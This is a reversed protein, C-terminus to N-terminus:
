PAWFTGVVNHTFHCLITAGLSKTVQRILADILLTPTYQLFVEPPTLRSSGLHLSAYAVTTLVVAAAPGFRQLKTQVVGQMFTAEAWPAYFLGAVITSPGSIGDPVSVGPLWVDPQGEIRFAIERGIYSLAISIIGGVIGIVLIGRWDLLGTWVRRLTSRARYLLIMTGIASVWLIATDGWSEVSKGVDHKVILSAAVYLALAIWFFQSTALWM